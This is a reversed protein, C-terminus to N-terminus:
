RLAFIKLMNINPVPGVSRKGTRKSSPSMETRLGGKVPKEENKKGPRQKLWPLLPLPLPRRLRRCCSPCYCCRRRRGPSAAGTGAPSTRRPMTTPGSPSCRRGRPTCSRPGPTCAVTRACRERPPSSYDSVAVHKLSLPSVYTHGTHSRCILSTSSTHSLICKQSGSGPKPATSNQSNRLPEMGM